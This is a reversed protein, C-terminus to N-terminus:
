VSLPSFRDVLQKFLPMGRERVHARPMCPERFLQFGLPRSAILKGLCQESLITAGNLAVYQLREHSNYRAILRRDVYEVPELPEHILKGCQRLTKRFVHAQQLLAFEVCAGRVIRGGNM